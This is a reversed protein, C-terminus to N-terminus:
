TLSVAQSRSALAPQSGCELNSQLILCYPGLIPVGAKSFRVALLIRVM